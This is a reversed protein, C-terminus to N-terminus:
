AAGDMRVFRYGAARFDDIIGPLAALTASRNGGGDHMLVIPHQQTLGTQARARIQAPRTAPAALHPDWDRTDVSWLVTTLGAARAPGVAGKVVGGPPRFMCARAGAALIARGTRALEASLPKAKWGTSSSPVHHAWTHNEVLHGADTIARISQPEAAAQRGIVFFTARVRKQRLAELVKPTWEGPGDDFTLAVTKTTASTPAGRVAPAEQVVSASAPACREPQPKQLRGAADARPSPGGRVAQLGSFVVAGVMLALCAM